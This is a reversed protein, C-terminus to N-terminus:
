GGAQVRAVGEEGVRCAAILKAVLSDWDAIFPQAPEPARVPVFHLLGDQFALLKDAWARPNDVDIFEACPYNGVTERAYPLDAVLMPLQLAKAETIPLGWTEMRSPFLLCDAQAYSSQVQTYSQRGVFRVTKLHGFKRVLWKAYRNESGDVTLIVQSRWSIHTEAMEVARCVLDLGKFPRPLVPYFFTKREGNASRGSLAEVSGVIPYAVIIREPNKVWKRFADRIWSQQVVVACNRNLNVRYIWRYLLGFLLLSPQFLVDTVRLRYFVAPNHCYVVQPIRGVSPSADHLSV